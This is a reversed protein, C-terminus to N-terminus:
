LSALFERLVGVHGADPDKVATVLTITKADIGGFTAAIEARHEELERRYKQVFDRHRSADAHFWQRLETSPAFEKAWLDIRAAERSLGRPWLRDVLMRFGDRKEPEDYVRKIHLTTPM